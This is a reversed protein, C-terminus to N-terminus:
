VGQGCARWMRGFTYDATEMVFGTTTRATVAQGNTYQKSSRQGGTATILVNYDANSYPKLLSVSTTTDQNVSALEGGQEIWGSKYIRYWNTGDVYSEVVYDYGKLTAVDTLVGAANIVNADQITEGVYFYTKSTLTDAGQGKAEWYRPLSSGSITFYESTRTVASLYSVAAASDSATNNYAIFVNSPLTKFKKHFYVKTTNDTPIEGGQECWGSKYLKYWNGNSDYSEVVFDDSTRIPLRFTTDTTNIVYDYDNIFNNDDYTNDRTTTYNIGSKSTFTFGDNTATAVTGLKKFVHGAARDYVVQGVHPISTSLWFHYGTGATDMFAYATGSSFNEKGANTNELIWNYFDVYTAGSHYSDNNILWSANSIATDSWIHMGFFFPNNLQIETSVDVSEESGTAVQIFYPYQIAEQQVPANDQYTSSVRSADFGLNKIDTHINDGYWSHTSSDAYFPGGFSDNHTQRNSDTIGKINPLSEAKIGGIVSLDQLGNINVVKPM